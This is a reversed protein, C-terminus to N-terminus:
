AVNTFTVLQQKRLSTRAELKWDIKFFMVLPFTMVSLIM